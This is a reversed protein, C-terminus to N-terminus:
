SFGGHEVKRFEPNTFFYQGDVLLNQLSVLIIYVVEFMCGEVSVTLHNIPNMSRKTSDFRTRYM